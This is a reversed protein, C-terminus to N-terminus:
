VVGDIELLPEDEILDIEGIKIGAYKCQLTAGLTDPLGHDKVLTSFHEFKKNIAELETQEEDALSLSVIRDHELAGVVQLPTPQTLFQRVWLRDHSHPSGTIKIIVKYVTRQRM